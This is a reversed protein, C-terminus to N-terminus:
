KATLDLTVTNRVLEHQLIHLVASCVVKGANIAGSWVSFDFKRLMCLVLENIAKGPEISPTLEIGAPTVLSLNFLTM